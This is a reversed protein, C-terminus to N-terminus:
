GHNEVGQRSWWPRHGLHFGRGTPCKYVGVDAPTQRRAHRADARTDYLRKPRGDSSVCQECTTWMIVDKSKRSM